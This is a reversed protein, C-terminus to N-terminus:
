FTANAGLTFGQTTDRGDQGQFADKSSMVQIRYGGTLTWRPRDANLAYALGVEALRYGTRYSIVDGSPTKLWGIGLSGYMSLGGGLPANASAGLVPGRPRYRQTGDSQSVGKYGLTLALNPMVAYGVNADFESRRGSSGDDFTFRTSPMASVSGLFDGYRVSLLPMVVLKDAASIETLALSDVGNQSFYSFTTWQAYWVRAGVTVSLAPDQARAQVAAVACAFGVFAAFRNM